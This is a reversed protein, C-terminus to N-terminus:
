WPRGPGSPSATGGEWGMVNVPKSSGELMAVMGRTGLAGHKFLTNEEPCGLLELVM